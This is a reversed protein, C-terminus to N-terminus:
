SISLSNFRVHLAIKRTMLGKTKHRERGPMRTAMAMSDYNAKPGKFERPTPLHGDTTTLFCNKRTARRIAKIVRSRLDSYLNELKYGQLNTAGM